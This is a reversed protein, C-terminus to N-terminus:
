LTVNRLCCCLKARVHLLPPMNLIYQSIQDFIFTNILDSKRTQFVSDEIVKRGEECLSIDIHM